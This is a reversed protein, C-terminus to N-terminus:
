SWWTTISSLSERKWRRAMTARDTRVLLDDPIRRVFDFAGLQGIGNGTARPLSSRSRASGLLQTLEQPASYPRPAWTRSAGSSISRWAPATTRDWCGWLELARTLARRGARSPVCSAFARLLVYKHYSGYGGFLEDSGRGFAVRHM